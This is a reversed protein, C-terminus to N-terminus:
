GAYDECHSLDREVSKVTQQTVSCEAALESVTAGLAGLEQRRPGDCLVCSAISM